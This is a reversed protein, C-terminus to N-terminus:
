QKNGVVKYFLRAVFSGRERRASKLTEEEKILKCVAEELM